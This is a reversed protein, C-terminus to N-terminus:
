PWSNLLCPVSSNLSPSAHPCCLTSVKRRKGWAKFFIWSSGKYTLLCSCCAHKTKMEPTMM